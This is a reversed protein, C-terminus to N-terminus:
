GGRPRRSGRRLPSAHTAGVFCTTELSQFPLREGKSGEAPNVREVRELCRVSPSRPRSTGIGARSGVFPAGVLGDPPTKIEGTNTLVSETRPLFPSLNKAGVSYSAFPLSPPSLTRRGGAHLDRNRTRAQGRPPGALRPVGGALRAAGWRNPPHRISPPRYEPCSAQRVFIESSLKRPFSPETLLRARRGREWPPPDDGQPADARRVGLFRRAPRRLRGPRSPRAVPPTARVGTSRHRGPHHRVRAAGMRGAREDPPCPFSPYKGLAPLRRQPWRTATREASCSSWHM